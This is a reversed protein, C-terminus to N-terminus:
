AVATITMSDVADESLLVLSEEGDSNIVFEIVGENRMKERFLMAATGFRRLTYVWGNRVKIEITYEKDHEFFARDM